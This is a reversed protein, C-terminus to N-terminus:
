QDKTTSVYCTSLLYKHFSHIQMLPSIQSSLIGGERGQKRGSSIKLYKTLIIISLKSTGTTAWRTFLGVPIWSSTPELGPRAWHTLLATTYSASVALIQCQKATTYAPLQLESKVGLRPVEMYRPHPGLFCFLLLLYSKLVHVDSVVNEDTGM